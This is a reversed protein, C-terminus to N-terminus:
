AAREFRASRAAEYANYLKLSDIGVASKLSAPLWGISGSTQFWRVLNGSPDSIRSEETFDRPIAGWAIYAVERTEISLEFLSQMEAETPPAGKVEWWVAPGEGFDLRFDPLYAGSPLDFGQAEYEWGVGLYDLLVAWRAEIRSRFHCDGYRTPIATTM